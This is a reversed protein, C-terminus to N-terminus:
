TIDWLQLIVLVQYRVLGQINWFALRSCQLPSKRCYFHHHPLPKELLRQSLRRSTNALCSIVRERMRVKVTRQWWHYKLCAQSKLITQSVTKVIEGRRLRLKRSISRCRIMILLALDKRTMIKRWSNLWSKRWNSKVRNPRKMRSKRDKATSNNSKTFRLHKLPSTSERPSQCVWQVTTKLM